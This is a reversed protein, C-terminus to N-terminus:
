RALPISEVRPAAELTAIAEIFWQSDQPMLLLGKDAGATKLVIELLRALLSNLDMEGSLTQSAKLVSALDLNASLTSSDASSSQSTGTQTLTISQTTLCTDTMSWLSREPNLIPALLRPYRRELDAVKTKAGWYIYGYYADTLYVQAIKEKGWDQYFQAACEYALAEEQHYQAAKAGAIARDYAEMAAMNEGLVRYRQAEVLEFKHQFNVPASEAWRQLKQQNQQVRELIGQQQEKALHSYDALQVLSDYFYFVSGFYLGTVGNIYPKALDAWERGQEIEGFLYSLILKHLYVQYLAYRDDAQYHLPLSQRENYATGVLETPQDPADVLNLVAQRYIEHYTLTNRQNIEELAQSYQALKEGLKILNKGCFYEYEHYHLICYAAYEVDGNELGAQYGEQLAPLCDRLPQQWPLIMSYVQNLIRAKLSKANFKELFEMALQGFEFGQAFQGWNSLILGYAAYAFASGSSNGYELSLSVQECIVLPLLGPYAVFTISVLTILIRLAALTEPNEMEPLDFIQHVPRDALLTEVRELALTTDEPTPSDPLHIGLQALVSKALALAEPLRNQSIYAQIKIDHIPIQDLFCQAHALVERALQEM